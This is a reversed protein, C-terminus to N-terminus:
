ARGSGRGSYLDELLRRYDDPFQTKFAAAARVRGSRKTSPYGTAARRDQGYARHAQRCHTCIGLGLRYERQYGANTGHTVIQM